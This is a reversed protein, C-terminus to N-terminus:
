PNCLGWVRLLEILDEVTSLAFEPRLSRGIKSPGTPHTQGHLLRMKQMLHYELYSWGSAGDEPNAEMLKRITQLNTHLDRSTEVTGLRDAVIAEVINKAKTVVERYTNATIARVLDDYQAALEKALLPAKLSSFDARPMQSSLRVPALTVVWQNLLDLEQRTLRWLAGDKEMGTLFYGSSESYSTLSTAKTARRYRLARKGPRTYSGDQFTVVIEDVFIFLLGWRHPPGDPSATFTMLWCRDSALWTRAGLLSQDDSSSSFAARFLTPQPELAHAVGNGDPALWLITNNRVLLFLESVEAVRVNFRGVNANLGFELTRKL